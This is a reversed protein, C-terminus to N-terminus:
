FPAKRKLDFSLLPFYDIMPAFNLSDFREDKAILPIDFEVSKIELSVNLSFECM